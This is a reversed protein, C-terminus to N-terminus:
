AKPSLVRGQAFVHFFLVNGNRQEGSYGGQIRVSRSIIRTSKSIPAKGAQGYLV